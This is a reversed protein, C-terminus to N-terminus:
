NCLPLLPPLVPTATQLRLPPSTAAVTTSKNKQQEVGIPDHHGVEERGHIVPNQGQRNSRGNDKAGNDRSHLCLHRWHCHGHQHRILRTVARGGGQQQIRTWSLALALAIVALVTTMTTIDPPLSAMTAAAM